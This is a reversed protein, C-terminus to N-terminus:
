KSGSAASHLDYAVVGSLHAPIRDTLIQVQSPKSLAWVNDSYHFGAPSLLKVGPDVILYRSTGIFYSDPNGLKSLATHANSVEVADMVASEKGDVSKELEELRKELVLSMFETSMEEAQEKTLSSADIVAQQKAVFEAHHAQIDAKTEFKTTNM